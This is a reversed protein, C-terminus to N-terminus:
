RSPAEPPTALPTFYYNFDDVGLYRTQLVYRHATFYDLLQQRVEVHAEIVVVTPRFREITFGALAKPEYGEIDMSMLDIHSVNERALLDDLTISSVSITRANEQVWERKATSHGKEETVYFPLVEDSRDSVMFSRFRTRPRYRVYAAAYDAQADIAIGSWALVSELYYTNSLERPDSSGVDLFVGERQDNLLERLIWEEPGMSYKDPGYTAALREGEKSPTVNTTVRVETKRAPSFYVLLAVSMSVFAVIAVLEVFDFQRRSVRESEQRM